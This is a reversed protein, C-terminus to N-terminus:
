LSIFPTVQTSTNMKDVSLLLRDPLEGIEPKFYGQEEQCEKLKRQLKLFELRIVELNKKDFTELQDVILTM